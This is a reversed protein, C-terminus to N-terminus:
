WSVDQEGIAQYLASRAFTGQRLLVDIIYIIVQEVLEAQLAYRDRIGGRDSHCSYKHLLAICLKCTKARKELLM